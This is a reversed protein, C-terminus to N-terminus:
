RKTFMGEARDEPSYPSLCWMNNRDKRLIERPFTAGFGRVEPDYGIRYCVSNMELQQCKRYSVAPWQCVSATRWDEDGGLECM